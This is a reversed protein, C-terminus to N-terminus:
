IVVTVSLPYSRKFNYQDSCGSLCCDQRCRAYWLYTHEAFAGEKVLKEAKEFNKDLCARYYDPFLPDNGFLIIVAHRLDKTLVAKSLLSDETNYLTEM